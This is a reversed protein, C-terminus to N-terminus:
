WWLVNLALLMGSIIGFYRIILWGLSWKVTLATESCEDFVDVAISFMGSFLVITALIENFTHHTM